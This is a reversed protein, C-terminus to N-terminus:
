PKGELAARQKRQKAPLINLAKVMAQQREEKRARAEPSMAASSWVFDRDLEVRVSDNGIAAKATDSAMTSIIPLVMCGPSTPAIVIVVEDDEARVDRVIGLDVISIPDGTVLSCPDAVADLAKWVSETATLEGMAAAPGGDPVQNTLEAPAATASSRLDTM